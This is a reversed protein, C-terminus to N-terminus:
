PARRQRRREAPPCLVDFQTSLSAFAADAPLVRPRGTVGFDRVRGDPFVSPKVIEGTLSRFVREHCVGDIHPPVDKSTGLDEACKATPTGRSACYSAADSPAVTVKAVVGARLSTPEQITLRLGPITPHDVVAASAASALLSLVLIASTRM